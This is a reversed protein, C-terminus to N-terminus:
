SKLKQHYNLLAVYSLILKRTRRYASLSVTIGNKNPIVSQTRAKFINSNMSNVISAMIPSMTLITSVKLILRIM